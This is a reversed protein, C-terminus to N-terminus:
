QSSCLPQRLVLTVKYSNQNQKQKTQKTKQKSTQKEQVYLHVNCNDEHNTQLEAATWNFLEPTM